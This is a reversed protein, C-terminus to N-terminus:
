RLLPPESAMWERFQRVVVPGDEPGFVTVLLPGLERSRGQWVLDHLTTM